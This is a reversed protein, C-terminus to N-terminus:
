ATVGKIIIFGIVIAESLSGGSRNFIGVRCSGAVLQDVYVLYSDVSAGSRIQLLVIDGAGIASNTFVFGVSTSAALAANHTTIEGCTKNLTM